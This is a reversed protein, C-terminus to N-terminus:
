KLGDEQAPEIDNHAIFCSIGFNLLAEQLEAAFERETALHSVFLRFM